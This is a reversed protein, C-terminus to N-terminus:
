QYHRPQGVAAASSKPRKNGEKEPDLRRKIGTRSDVEMGSNFPIFDSNVESVVINVLSDDSLAIPSIQLPKPQDSNCSQSRKGVTRKFKRIKTAVTGTATHVLGAGAVAPFGRHDEAVAKGKEVHTEVALVSASAAGSAQNVSDSVRDSPKDAAGPIVGSSSSIGKRETAGLVDGFDSPRGEKEVVLPIAAVDAPNGAKDAVVPVAGVDDLSGDGGVNSSSGAHLIVALPSVEVSCSPHVEDSASDGSNKGSSPPPSFYNRGRQTTRRQAEFWRSYKWISDQTVAVGVPLLPCERVLHGIEGCNLCMLPLKEYVLLMTIPNENPVVELAATRRLPQSLDIVVRVRLYRGFCLGSAGLDVDVVRGVTEGIRFAMTKSMGLLPVNYFRIWFEQKSFDLRALDGVEKPEVLVVLAGNFLWPGELLVRRKVAVNPFYFVFKNEGLSEAM